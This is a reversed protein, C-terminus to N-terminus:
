VGWSLVVVFSPFEDSRYRCPFHCPRSLLISVKGRSGNFHHITYVSLRELRVKVRTVESKEDEGTPSWPLVPGGTVETRVVEGPVYCENYLIFVFTKIFFFVTKSGDRHLCSLSIQFKTLVEPFVDM